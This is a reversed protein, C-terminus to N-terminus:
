SGLPVLSTCEGDCKVHAEKQALKILRHWLHYCWGIGRWDIQHFKGSGLSFPFNRLLPSKVPRKIRVASRFIPYPSIAPLPLSSASKGGERGILAVTPKDATTGAVGDCERESRPDNHEEYRQWHVSSPALFGESFSCRQKAGGQISM